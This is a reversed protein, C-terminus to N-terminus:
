VNAAGHATSIRGWWVRTSAAARVCCGEGGSWPSAETAMAAGPREKEWASANQLPRPPVRACTADASALAATTATMGMVVIAHIPPSSVLSPTHIHVLPPPEKGGVGPRRAKAYLLQALPSSRSAAPGCHTAISEELPLHSARSQASFRCCM